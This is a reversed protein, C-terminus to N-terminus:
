NPNSLVQQVDLSNNSQLVLKTQLYALHMGSTHVYRCVLLLTAEAKM